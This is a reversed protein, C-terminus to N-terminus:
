LSLTLVLEVTSKFSLNGAVIYPNRKRLKFVAQNRKPLTTENENKTM